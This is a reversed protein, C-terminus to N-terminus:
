EAKKASPRPRNVAARRGSMMTEQLEAVLAKAKEEDPVYKKVVDLMKKEVAAKREAMFKERRTRMEARQEPTMSVRRPAQKVAEVAKPATPVTPVTPVTAVGDAAVVNLGLVATFAAIMMACFMKM